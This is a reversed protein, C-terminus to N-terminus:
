KSLQAVGYGAGDDIESLVRFGVSQLSQRLAPWQHERGPTPHYELAIRDIRDLVHRPAAAFTEYESGEIDIKLLNVREAPPVISELTVRPVQEGAGEGAIRFQSPGTTMITTVGESGGLAAHVCTARDSVGHAKLLSVLRAFTASSPEVAIVRIQPSFLLAYLSFSGINGGADIILRDTPRLTYIGAFFIQWFTAIDSKERFEFPGSPLNIAFPRFPAGAYKATLEMWQPTARRARLIEAVRGPQRLARLM